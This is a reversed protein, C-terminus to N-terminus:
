VKAVRFGLEFLLKMYGTAPLMDNRLGSATHWGYFRVGGVLNGGVHVYRTQLLSGGAGGFFSFYNLRDDSLTKPADDEIVTVPRAYDWFLTGTGLGAVGYLGMLTRDPTLYYRFSVDLNLEVPERLSEYLYAEDSFALSNITATGDVRMRPEPYGGVALGLTSFGDYERGGLAGGGLVLNAFLRHNRPAPPHPPGPPGPEPPPPPEDDDRAPPTTYGVDPKPGKFRVSSDARAAVDSLSASGGEHGIDSAMMLACGSSSLALVALLVAMLLRKM